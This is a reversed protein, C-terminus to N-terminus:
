DASPFFFSVPTNASCPTTMQIVFSGASSIAAKVACLPDIKQAVAIVNTNATVLSNTVVVRATGAPVNVRGHAKNITVDGIVTTNTFDIFVRKFGINPTGIDTSGAANLAIATGTYTLANSGTLTNPTAAGFAVQTPGISGSPGGGGGVSSQAIGRVGANASFAFLLLPLIFLRM